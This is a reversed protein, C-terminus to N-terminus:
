RLLHVTGKMSGRYYGGYYYLSWAYVGEPLPRGRYTGDWGIDPNRTEFVLQGWRDFIRFEYRELEDVYPRFVDNTGASVSPTFATPVFVRTNCSNFIDLDDSGTCGEASRATVRVNGAQTARFLPASSGDSWTLTWGPQMAISLPLNFPGCFSTDAPLQPRPSNFVRYRVSDAAEGCNNAAKVVYTGATSATILPTGAGTNWFYSNGRGKGSTADLTRSNMADCFDEDGPLSLQPMENFAVLISDRAAGCQNVVQVWYLGDATVSLPNARSGTNWYFTDNNSGTNATVAFATVNCLLTDKPLSVVPATGFRVQVTDRAVGCKNQVKVHVLDSKNVTISPANVPDVNWVYSASDQAATALSWSAVKCLLTDRGLDAKPSRILGFYMTDASQGCSNWQRVWYTGPSKVRVIISSDGTNWRIKGFLNQGGTGVFEDIRNCFVSDKPLKSEPFSDYRVTISDNVSGCMNKVRVRYLYQWGQNAVIERTTDGTNWAYVCANNSNGADLTVQAPLCATSDKGLDLKPTLLRALTISDSVSGCYKTSVTVLFKGPASKKITRTTDATSWLYRVTPITDNRADLLLSDNNCLTTDGRLRAKPSYHLFIQVTDGKLGCGYTAQVSYTGPKRVVLRRVTDKTNWRYSAGKNGADLIEFVADCEYKDKGLDIQSVKLTDRWKAVVGSYFATTSSKSGKWAKLTPFDTSASYGSMVLHTVCGIRRAAAAYLYDTNNGGFYTAYERYGLPDLKAIFGDYTGKLVKQYADATVPFTKDMTNGTMILEDKVTVAIRQRWSWFSQGVYSSWFPYTGDAKMKIAFANYGGAFPSNIANPLGSGNTIGTVFIEDADNVTVATTYDFGSTGLYKSVMWKTFASDIKFLYGDYGGQFNGGWGRFGGTAPLNQSTTYGTLYINDRKDVFVSTTYEFGDGGFRTSQLIKSGKNNYKIVYCDPVATVFSPPLLPNTVTITGFSYPAIFVEGRENVDVAFSWTGLGSTGVYTSYILSKGDPNIGILFGTYSFGGSYSPELVGSTTPFDSSQTIGTIFMRGDDTGALGYAYDLGKGGLYTFYDITNGSLPMRCLFADASGGNFTTDFIGAKGPFKDTTYGTVYVYDNKDVDTDYIWTSNNTVSGYFYTSWDLYMPDVRLSADSQAGDPLLFATTSDNLLTYEVRLPAPEGGHVPTQWSAPIEERLTFWATELILRSQEAKLDQLGSWVIRVQNLDASRDALVDYKLLSDAIYFRLHIGPYLNRYELVEYDPVDIIPKAGDQNRFYHTRADSAGSGSIQVQNSAGVFRMQFSLYEYTAARMQHPLMGEYPLAPDVVRRTGFIIKDAYFAIDRDGNTCRYRIEQEWQGRNERFFYQAQPLNFGFLTGTFLSLFPIIRQVFQM